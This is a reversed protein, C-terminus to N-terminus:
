TEKNIALKKGSRDGDLRVVEDLDEGAAVHAGEVADGELDLRAGHEPQEAGVPGALGRRHADEGGDELGVLADGGDQAVVHGLLGVHHAADDPQGALVGRDVLVQAPALVDVHDAPEGM